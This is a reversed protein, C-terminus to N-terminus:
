QSASWSFSQGFPRTIETGHEFNNFAYACPVFLNFVQVCLNCKSLCPYGCRISKRNAFINSAYTTEGNTIEAMDIDIDENEREDHSHVRTHM